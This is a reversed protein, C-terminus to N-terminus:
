WLLNKEYEKKMAEYNIVNREALIKFIREETQVDQKLLKGDNGCIMVLKTILQETSMEKLEKLTYRAM